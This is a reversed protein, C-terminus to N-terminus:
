GSFSDSNFSNSSERFQFGFSICHFTITMSNTICWSRVSARLFLSVFYHIYIEIMCVTAIISRYKINKKGTLCFNTWKLEKCIHACRDYKQLDELFRNWRFNVSGINFTEYRLITKCRIAIFLFFRVLDCLTLISPCRKDVTSYKVMQTCLITVANRSVRVLFVFLVSVSRM